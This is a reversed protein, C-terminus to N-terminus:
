KSPKIEFSVERVVVGKPGSCRLKGSIVGDKMEGVGSGEHLTAVHLVDGQPTRALVRAEGSALWHFVRDRDGLGRRLADPLRDM